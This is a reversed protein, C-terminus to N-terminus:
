FYLCSVYAAITISIRYSDWKSGQTIHLNYTKLGSEEMQVVAWYRYAPSGAAEAPLHHYETPFTQKVIQKTAAVANNSSSSSDGAPFAFAASILLLSCLFTSAQLM